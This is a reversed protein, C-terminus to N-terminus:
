EGVVLIDSFISFLNLDGLGCGLGNVVRRMVGSLDKHMLDDLSNFKDKTLVVGVSRGDENRM